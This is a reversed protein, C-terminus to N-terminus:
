RGAPKAVANTDSMPELGYKRLIAAYDAHTAGYKRLEAVITNMRTAELLVAQTVPAQSAISKSQFQELRFIFLGFAVTLAIGLYHALAVQRGLRRITGRVEAPDLTEPTEQDM